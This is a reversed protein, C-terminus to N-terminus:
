EEYTPLLFYRYSTYLLCAMLMDIDMNASYYRSRKGLHDGTHIQMEIEAWVNESKAYADFRVGRGDSSFKLAAQIQTALAAM